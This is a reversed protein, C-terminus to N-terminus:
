SMGAYRVLEALRVEDLRWLDQLEASAPMAAARARGSPYTSM